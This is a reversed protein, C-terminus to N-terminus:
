IPSMINTITKTITHETKFGADKPPVDGVMGDTVSLLINSNVSIGM